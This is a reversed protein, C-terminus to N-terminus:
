ELQEDHLLEEQRLGRPARVQHQRGRAPELLRAGEGVGLAPDLEHTRRRARRALGARVVLDREVHRGGEARAPATRCWRLDHVLDRPDRRLQEAAHAVRAQVAVPQLPGAGRRIVRARAAQVDLAERAALRPQQRDLEDGLGSCSTGPKGYVSTM